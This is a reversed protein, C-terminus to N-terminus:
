KIALISTPTSHEHGNIHKILLTRFHKENKIEKLDVPLKNWVLPGKYKISQKTVNTRCFSPFFRSASRTKKCTNRKIISTALIHKIGLPLTENAYRFMFMGIELQYM